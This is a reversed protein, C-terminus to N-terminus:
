DDYSIATPTQMGTHKQLKETKHSTKMIKTTHVRALKYVDNDETDIIVYPGKFKPPPPKRDEDDRL